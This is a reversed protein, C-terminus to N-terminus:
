KFFMLFLTVLFSSIPRAPVQACYHSHGSRFSSVQTLVPTSETCMAGHQETPPNIYADLFM